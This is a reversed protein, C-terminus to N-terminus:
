LVVELPHRYVFVYHPNVLLPHWFDLFLCTRPDKWGWLRQGRRRDIIARAREVDDPKMEALDAKTATLFSKGIRQLVQEHFAQFENGEFHGRRNGRAPGDLRDGVNVGALQLASTVLSTGSRHMGAIVVTAPSCAENPAPYAPTFEEITSRRP